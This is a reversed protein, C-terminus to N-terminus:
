EIVERLAHMTLDQTAEDDVKHSKGVETTFCDLYSTRQGGGVPTISIKAGEIAAWDIGGTAPIVATVKLDIQEVGKSYGAARGTRNMTKVLKRGTNKTVDLSVIEVEVGDVEMVIAGEYEELAM